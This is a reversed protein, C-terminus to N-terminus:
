SPREKSNPVPSQFWGTGSAVLCAKGDTGLAAITWTEGDPSVFVVMVANPNVIGGGIEVEHYNSALAARMEAFPGCRPEQSRASSPLLLVAASAAVTAILPIKDAIRTM